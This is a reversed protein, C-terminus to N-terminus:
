QYAFATNSVTFNNQPKIRSKYTSRFETDFVVRPSSELQLKKSVGKTIKSHIPMNHHTIYPKELREKPTKYKASFVPNSSKSDSSIFLNKQVHEQSTYAQGHKNKSNSRLLTRLIRDNYVNNKHLLHKREQVRLKSKERDQTALIQVSGSSQLSIESRCETFNSNKYPNSAFSRTTDSITVPIYAVSSKQSTDFNSGSNSIM